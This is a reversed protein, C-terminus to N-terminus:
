YTSCFVFTLLLLAISDINMDKTAGRPICCAASLLFGWRACLVCLVWDWELDSSRVLFLWRPHYLLTFRILGDWNEKVLAPLIFGFFGLGSSVGLNVFEM